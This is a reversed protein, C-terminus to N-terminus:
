TPHNNASLLRRSSCVIEGSKGRL